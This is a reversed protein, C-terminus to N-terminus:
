SSTLCDVTALGLLRRQDEWSIPLQIRMLQELSM